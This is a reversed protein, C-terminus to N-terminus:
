KTGVWSIGVSENTRLRESLQGAHHQIHRINYIQLELKNFSLWHFGSAADMDVTSVKEEVENRCVVLYELIDEKTYPKGINPEKHPAWPLSGLFQYEKQHKNWAVFEEESNQLYLHTFFLTHYALHWFRNKHKPDDWLPDTCKTIAEGLMELSARYQSAIIGKIAM